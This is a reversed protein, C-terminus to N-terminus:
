KGKGATGQADAALEEALINIANKLDNRMGAWYWQLERDPEHQLLGRVTKLECKMRKLAREAANPKRKM